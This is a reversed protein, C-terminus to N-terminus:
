PKSERDSIELAKKLDSDTKQSEARRREEAQATRKSEELAKRLEDDDDGGGGGGGGGSGYRGASSDARDHQGQDSWRHNNRGSREERLRADDSLHATIDKSLQRVNAGHDRGDEDLYIFEKLTKIVYLNEKAYKIVNESGSVLLFDLLVLSKYVHRWNKGSDNLRKDIMEMVEIFDRHNHTARAITALDSQSAPAPDNSTAARVKIQVDSYGKTYNKITRIAGKGANM